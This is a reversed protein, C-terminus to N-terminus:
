LLRQEQLANISAAQVKLSKYLAKASDSKIFQPFTENEMLTFIENQAEEFVKNDVQFNYDFDEEDEKNAAEGLINELQNQIDEPLQVFLNGSADIYRKYLAIARVRQENLDTVQKYSEVDKWFLINEVCFSQVCFKQFVESAQKDQLCDKLNMLAKFNPDLGKIPENLLKKRGRAHAVLVPVLVTLIFTLIVCGVILWHQAAFNYYCFSTFGNFYTCNGDRLEDCEHGRLALICAPVLLVFWVVSMVQLERGVRFQDKVGSTYIFVAALCQIGLVIFTIITQVIASSLSVICGACPPLYGLEPIFQRAIGIIFCLTIFFGFLHNVYKELISRNTQNNFVSSEAARIEEQIRVSQRLKKREAESLVPKRNFLRMFRQLLSPETINSIPANSSPTVKNEDHNILSGGDVVQDTQQDEAGEEFVVGKAQKKKNQEKQQKKKEKHHELAKQLDASQGGNKNLSMSFRQEVVTVRQTTRTELLSHNKVKDVNRKFVLYLQLSRVPYPLLFFPFGIWLTWHSYICPWKEIGTIYHAMAFNTVIIYGGIASLLVMDPSRSKLPQIKRSWFFLAMFIVFCSSYGAWVTYMTTGSATSYWNSRFLSPDDDLTTNACNQMCTDQCASM